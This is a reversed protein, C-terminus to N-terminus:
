VIVYINKLIKEINVKSYFDMRYKTKSTTTDNLYKMTEIYHCKSTIDKSTLDPM